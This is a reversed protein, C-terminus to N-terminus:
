KSWMNGMQCGFTSNKLFITQKNQKTKKIHAGSKNLRFAYYLFVNWGTGAVLYINNCPFLKSFMFEKRVKEM